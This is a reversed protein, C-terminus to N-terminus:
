DRGTGRVVPRYGRTVPAPPVSLGWAPLNELCLLAASWLWTWVGVRGPSASKLWRFCRSPTEATACRPGLTEAAGPPLNSGCHTLPGPMEAATACTVVTAAIPEKARSRWVSHPPWFSLLNQPGYVMAWMDLTSLGHQAGLEWLRAHILALPECPEGLAPPGWRAGRGAATGGDVRTDLGSVQISGRVQHGDSWLRDRLM